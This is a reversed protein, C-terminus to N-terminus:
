ELCRGCTSRFNRSKALPLRLWRPSEVESGLLGGMRAHPLSYRAIWRSGHALLVDFVWVTQPQDAFFRACPIVARIGPPMRLHQSLASSIKPLNTLTQEYALSTRMSHTGIEHGLGHIRRIVHPHREAMWGLCFFTAKLNRAEVIDLLRDVVPEFRSPYKEWDVVDRTSANDLIHFWDEIDFTLVNMNAGYKMLFALASRTCQRMFM